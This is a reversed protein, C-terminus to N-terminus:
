GERIVWEIEPRPLVEVLLDRLDEVGEGTEASVSLRGEMDRRVLDAKTEVVVVRADPYRERVSSLLGEQEEVSSGCTESPDILFMLVGSLHEIAAIARLEIPNREELPRDLIGPTDVLQYAHRRHYFHGVTVAKTTFPYSAVEPEATSLRAVLASKGVNPSGAVVATPVSPDIHPLSRLVERTRALLELEGSVRELLSSVRGYVEKRKQEVFEHSRTRALQRNAKVCVQQVQGRCWGLTDLAAAVETPDVAITLVEAHFPHIRQLVSFSEVVRQLVADVSSAVSDIRAMAQRRNRHMRDRDEVTVKSAKHFAKDLVEQHTPVTPIDFDGGRGKRRAKTRAMTPGIRTGRRLGEPLGTVSSRSM